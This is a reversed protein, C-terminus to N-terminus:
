KKSIICTNDIRTNLPTDNNGDISSIYSCLQVEVNNIKGKEAVYEKIFKREIVPLNLSLDTSAEIKIAEHFLPKISDTCIYGSPDKGRVKYVYKGKHLITDGINIDRDSTFFLHQYQIFGQNIDVQSINKKIFLDGSSLGKGLETAKESPLMVVNCRKEIM